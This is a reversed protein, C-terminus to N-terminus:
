AGSTNKSWYEAADKLQPLWRDSLPSSIYTSLFPMLTKYRPNEPPITKVRFNGLRRIDEWKKIWRGGRSRSLLFIRNHGNGPNVDVVYCLAGAAATKTAITYNCAIVRLEPDPMALIGYVEDLRM